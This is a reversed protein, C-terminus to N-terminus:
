QTVDVGGGNKGSGDRSNFIVNISFPVVCEGSEELLGVCVTETLTQGEEVRYEAETLGFRAATSPVWNTLHCCLVRELKSDDDRITVRTKNRSGIKILPDLQDNRMLSIYFDEEEEVKRTDVIGVSFCRRRHCAAIILDGMADQSVYDMGGATYLFYLFYYSIKFLGFHKDACWLLYM